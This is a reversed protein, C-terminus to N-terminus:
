YWEGRRISSLPTNRCWKPNDDKRILDHQHERAPKYGIHGYVGKNLALGPIRLLRSRSILVKVCLLGRYMRPSGKASVRFFRRVFRWDCSTPIEVLSPIKCSPLCVQLTALMRITSLPLRLNSYPCHYGPM